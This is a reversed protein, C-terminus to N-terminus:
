PRGGRVWGRRWSGRFGCRRLVVSGVFRSRLRSWCRTWSVTVRWGCWMMRGGCLGWRLMVRVWRRRRPTVGPVPGPCRLMQRPRSPLWRLGNLRLWTWAWPRHTKCAVGLGSSRGSSPLARWVGRRARGSSGQWRYVPTATVRRRLVVCRRGCGSWSRLGSGSPWRRGVRM